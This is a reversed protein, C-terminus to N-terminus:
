LGGEKRRYVKFTLPPKNTQSIMEFAEFDVEPFYTDGTHSEDIRTLYLYDAYPLAAEYVSRGGIVFLEEEKEKFETLFANLDRVMRVGAFGEASRSLVYNERGPLPGGLKAAISEYTKRGMLVKKGKTTRKFYRLDESHHWPLDDGKGILGNRDMAAILSIM